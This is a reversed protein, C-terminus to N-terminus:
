EMGGNEKWMNSTIELQENGDASIGIAKKNASIGIASERPITKGINKEM